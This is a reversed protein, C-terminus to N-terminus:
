NKAMNQPDDIQTLIAQVTHEIPRNNDIPIAGDKIYKPQRAEHREVIRAIDAPMYEHEHTELHQALTEKCVVLTFVKDFLPYFEKQNGMVAGIFVTKASALLQKLPEAQWNWRYRDWDVLGDPWTVPQGSAADELRCVKPMDDTNYATYGLEQLVRIVTSKGTGQRGTILYKGM